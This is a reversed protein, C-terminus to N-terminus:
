DLLELQRLRAREKPREYPGPGPQLWTLHCREVVQLRGRYIILEPELWRRGDARRTIMDATIRATDLMAPSFRARHWKWVFREVRDGEPLVTGDPCTITHAMRCELRSM